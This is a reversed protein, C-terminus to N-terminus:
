PAFRRNYSWVARSLEADAAFQIPVSAAILAAGAGIASRGAGNFRTAGCILLAGGVDTFLAALTRRRTATSAHRRAISDDGFIHAVPAPWLFPLTAVREESAGRVVSLGTLRPVIDLSCRAYECHDAVAQAVAARVPCGLLGGIVFATGITFRRRM